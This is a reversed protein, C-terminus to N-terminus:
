NKSCPGEEFIDLDNNFTLIKESLQFFRKAAVDANWLESITKYAAIGLEKQKDKKKSGVYLGTSLYPFTEKTIESVSYPQQFGYM